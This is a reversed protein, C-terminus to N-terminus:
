NLLLITLTFFVKMHLVWNGWPVAMFFFLKLLLVKHSLLVWLFVFKEGSLILVHELQGLECKFTTDVDHRTTTAM